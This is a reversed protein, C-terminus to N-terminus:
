TNFNASPYNTELLLQALKAFLGEGALRPRLLFM